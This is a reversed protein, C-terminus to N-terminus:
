YKPLTSRIDFLINELNRYNKVIYDCFEPCDLAINFLDVQPNNKMYDIINLAIDDNTYKVQTPIGYEKANEDEKTIYAKNQSATGHADQINATPFIKKISSFTCANDFECYIHFHINGTTPAKERGIICYHTSKVTNIMDYIADHTLLDDFLTIHWKRFRQEKEKM